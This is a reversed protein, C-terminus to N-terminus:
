HTPLSQCFTEVDRAILDAFKKSGAATFHGQDAFDDVEFHEIGADIYAAGSGEAVTKLLSNFHQQTPWVNKNKVRPAWLNPEEPKPEFYATNLIQGIFVTRVGRSRNISTITRVNNSFIKELRPDPIATATEGAVVPAQPVSDFRRAVLRNVLQILPSYKAAWVEPRRAANGFILLRHWDNYGSDLNDIHANHIDNWGVYYVACVPLRGNAEQYFATHILHEATSHAPVGFNLVTFRGSLARQLQEAWTDGQSVTVDYTTSGGYIFIMDLEYDRAALEPGRLGLSNHSFKFDGGLKDWNMPWNVYASRNRADFRFTHQWNKKPSIQLLSHYALHRNVPRTFINNPFLQAALPSTPLLLSSVALVAEVCCWLFVAISIRPARSLAAALGLAVMLYVFFFFRQTGITLTGNLLMVVAITVAATVGVCNLLFAIAVRFNYPKTFGYHQRLSTWNTPM